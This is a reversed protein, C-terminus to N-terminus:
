DTPYVISVTTGEGPKSKLHLAGDLLEARYRLNNLGMGATEAIAEQDFGDGDDHITLRCYGTMSKLWIRIHRAHGHKIANGVAEQAIRYLHIALAEDDIAVEITAQLECTVGPLTSTNDALERLAACLGARELVAPYLGHSLVRVMEISQNALKVLRQAAEMGALEERQLQQALAAGLFAISTLQQGLGDHLERGLARRQRESNRLLAGELRKRSAMEQRLGANIRALEATRAAVRQELERHAAELAQRSRREEASSAALLLGTIALLNTFACWHLLSEQASGVAFPGHGTITGWIALLSFVLIVLSAGWLSFRLAGWIVFPLMALAAPLGERGSAEPLLFVLAGVAMLSTLLTIAELRQWPTLPPLKQSFGLLLLPAVVLVGMMDGLWWTLWASAPGVNPLEGGQQLALVGLSASVMPALIAALLVLAFVDHRRELAPHFRALRQLLGAGTLASLTNGVAIGAAVTWSIDTLLNALFAGCLIGLSLGRGLLLIVVLAIGSPPWVLTVTDGVVAFRLGVEAALFYALAAGLQRLVPRSMRQITTVTMAM